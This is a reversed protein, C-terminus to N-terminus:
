RRYEAPTRGTHRRFVRSLHSADAFGAKAAVLELTDDSSGLLCKAVELHVRTVYERVTMETQAKFLHSLYTDSLGTRRAITGITLRETYRRAVLDVAHRVHVNRAGSILRARRRPSVLAAITAALDVVDRRFVVQCAPVGDFHHPLRDRHGADVVVPFGRDGHEGSVARFLDTEPEALRDDVLVAGPRREIIRRTAEEETSAVRVDLVDTLLAALAACRGLDSGAILLTSVVPRPKAAPRIAQLPVPGRRQRTAEPTGLM